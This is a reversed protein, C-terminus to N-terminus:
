QWSGKSVPVRGWKSAAVYAATNEVLEPLSGLTSQAISHELPQVSFEKQIFMQQAFPRITEVAGRVLDGGVGGSMLDAMTEFAILDAFLPPLVRRRKFDESRSFGRFMANILELNTIAQDAGPCVHVIKHTSFKEFLNLYILKLCFEGSVLYILTDQNGPIMSILGHYLIRMTNHVVNYQEVYGTSDHSLITALRYINWPLHDYQNILLTEAEFKSREYHNAFGFENTASLELLRGPQKGTAYVTSIYALKELSNCKSAFEFLNKSGKVNVENALSEEVNFRTIAALHIIIHISDPNLQNLSESDSIDGFSLQYRLGYNHLKDEIAARKSQQEQESNARCFLLLDFGTSNLIQEALMLGLYSDGGTILVREM